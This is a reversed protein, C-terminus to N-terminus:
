NKEEAAAKKVLANFQRIAENAAKANEQALNSYKKAAASRDSVYREICKRYAPLAKNYAEVQAPTPNSRPPVAPKHCDLRPIEATAALCVGGSLLILVSGLVLACLRKMPVGTDAISGAKM